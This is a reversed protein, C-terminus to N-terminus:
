KEPWGLWRTRDALEPSMRSWTKALDAQGYRASFHCLVVRNRLLAARALLEDLHVHGMERAQKVSVDEGVFSCEIVLTEAQQLVAVQDLVDVRTDGTFALVPVEVKDEITTGENRLRTLATGDLGQFEPRLKSRREYVAYGQSPVRHQTAFPRVSRNRTLLLTEGPDLGFLEHPIPEGNAAGAAAFLANAAPLLSRPMVYRGPTMGMLARYAAHQPMAGCHDIHGHSIFVTQTKIASRSCRGMDFVLKLAPVEICTEIGAVSFGAVETM